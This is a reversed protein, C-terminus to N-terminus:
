IKGAPQRLLMINESLTSLVKQILRRLSNFDSPKRIFEQSGHSNLFRILKHEYVSDRQFSTSLVVIHLKRFAPNEKIETLCEFGTKRPMSLDLFLVDPLKNVHNDLYKILEEGDKVIALQTPITLEQLAKEFLLCDDTDDDALLISLPNANM